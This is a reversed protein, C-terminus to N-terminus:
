DKISFYISKLSLSEPYDLYQTLATIVVNTKSVITKHLYDVLKIQLSAPIRVALPIKDMKSVFFDALITNLKVQIVSFQLCFGGFQNKRYSKIFTKIM